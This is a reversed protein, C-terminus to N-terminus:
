KREHPHGTGTEREAWFLFSFFPPRPIYHAL